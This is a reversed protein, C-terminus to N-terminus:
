SYMNDYEEEEQIKNKKKSRDSKKDHASLGRSNTTYYVMECNQTDEDPCICIIIRIKRTTRFSNNFLFSKTETSYQDGIFEIIWKQERYITHTWNKCYRQYIFRVIQENTYQFIFSKHLDLKSWLLRYQFIHNTIKNFNKKSRNILLKLEERFIRIEPHVVSGKIGEFYLVMNAYIKNNEEQEKTLPLHSGNEGIARDELRTFLKENYLTFSHGDEVLKILRAQGEFNVEMQPNHYINVIDGSEM